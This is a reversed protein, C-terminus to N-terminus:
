NRKAKRENRQTNSRLIRKDELVISACLKQFQVEKAIIMQQQHKSHNLGGITKPMDKYDKTEIM